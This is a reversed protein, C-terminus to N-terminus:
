ADFPLHILILITSFEFEHFKRKGGKRVDEPAQVFGGGKEIQARRATRKAKPPPNFPGKGM